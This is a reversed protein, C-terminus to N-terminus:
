TIAKDETFVLSHKANPVSGLPVDECLTAM